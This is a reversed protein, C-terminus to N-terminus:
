LLGPMFSRSLFCLFSIRERAEGFLFDSLRQATMTTITASAAENQRDKTEFRAREPTEMPPASTINSIKISRPTMNSMIPVATVAAFGTGNWEIADLFTGPAFAAILIIDCAPLTDFKQLSTIPSMVPIILPPATMTITPKKTVDNPHAFFLTSMLRTSVLMTAASVMPPLASPFLM